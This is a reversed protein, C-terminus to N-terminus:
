FLDNLLGIWVDFDDFVPLLSCLLKTPRSFSRVLICFADFPLSLSRNLCPAKVVSLRYDSASSRACMQARRSSMSNDGREWAAWAVFAFRVRLVARQSAKM